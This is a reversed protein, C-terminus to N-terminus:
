HKDIWEDATYRAMMMEKLYSSHVYPQMVYAAPAMFLPIVMCEDAMFRVLQKTIAKQEADTKMFVSKGALDLLAPPKGISAYTAIPEPGFQRHFTTLYNPDLGTLFLIMDPWGNVFLSSFFRGPDAQDLEVNIGVDRLYGAIAEADAAFYSGASVMMKIAIGKPYGAEALLQKAKAADYPRGKYAPDFGWEGPPAVMTLPTYYGFGLAKAMAPKNLAYEVAERLKKNQFKSNPDKTNMYIMRPTGYGSRRVLGAKEMDFQSKIPINVWYDAEKALMMASATVPDPVFRVISGDLYPKGPQWYNENRTWKLYNDRKYEVLKFPGTGVVNVRAWEKGKEMGAGAAKDFAAKSFIPLWGFSHLLQNHLQAVNLRVTYNDVVEIGALKDSFQMKKTDKALQINWAVAEANMESGDHFKVGKRLNFTITKKAEDINVSQALFPILQHEQNYEMLREVAPMVAMQEPIGMDPYYGLVAPGSPWIERLTGGYVPKGPGSKQQSLADHVFSTCLIGVLLFVFLAKKMLGERLIKHAQYM